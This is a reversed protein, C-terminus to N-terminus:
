HDSARFLQKSAFDLGQLYDPSKEALFFNARCNANIYTFTREAWGPAFRRPESREPYHCIVKQEPVVPHQFYYKWNSNKGIEVGLANNAALNAGAM